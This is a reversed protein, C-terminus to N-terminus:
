SKRWITYILRGPLVLFWLIMFFISPRKEKVLVPFNQEYTRPFHRSCQIVRIAYSAM